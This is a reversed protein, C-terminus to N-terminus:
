NDKEDCGAVVVVVVFAEEEEDDDDHETWTWGLLSIFDLGFLLYRRFLTM